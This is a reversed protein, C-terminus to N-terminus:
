FLSTVEQTLLEGSIKGQHTFAIIGEKDVITTIPWVDLGGM